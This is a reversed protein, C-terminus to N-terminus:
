LSYFTTIVDEGHKELISICLPAIFSGVIEKKRKITIKAYIGLYL